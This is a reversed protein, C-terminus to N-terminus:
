KLEALKEAEPFLEIAKKVQKSASEIIVIYENTNWMNRSLEAKLELRIQEKDKKYDEPDWYVDNKEAFKRFDELDENKFNFEDLFDKFDNKYDDILDNEHEIFYLYAYSFLIRKRRLDEILNTSKNYKVYYDPTIGGSGVVTRGLKTKHMPPLSDAPMEKKLKELLDELKSGDELDFRGAFDEYKSKDEFPRQICRGSPTYYRSTTIRYGSGDDNKFQRQVLGKGYTTEGIVLGRDLDQIAGILIESASASNKDALMIIPLNEFAGAGTSYYEKDLQSNRGKTYVVMQNAPIFEDAIDFAQNLYGGTNGHLGIILKKMGKSRLMNISDVVEEHAKSTFSRFMIFGIDTGEIMFASNVSYIPIKDRNMEFEILGKSKLRRVTLKVPTGILGKLRDSLRDGSLGLASLGDILVIRDGTKLGAKWAPTGQMVSIITVTDKILATEVGIGDFEGKLGDNVDNMKKVPYYRSHPDLEKLLGIIAAEELKYTDVSDVYNEYVNKFVKALKELIEDNAAQANSEVAGALFVVAIATFIIRKM